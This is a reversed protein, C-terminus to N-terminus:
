EYGGTERKITLYVFLEAKRMAALRSSAEGTTVTTLTKVVEFGWDEGSGRKVVRLTYEGSKNEWTPLGTILEVSHAPDRTWGPPIKFRDNEYVRVGEPLKRSSM